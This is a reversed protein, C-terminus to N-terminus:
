CKKYSKKFIKMKKLRISINKGLDYLWKQITIQTIKEIIICILFIGIVTIPIVIFQWVNNYWNDLNLLELYLKSSLVFHEHILYVGLTLPTIKKVIKIIIDKKIKLDKFYLFLFVSAMFTTLFNYAYIKESLDNINLMNCIYKIILVLFYAFITILFYVILNIKNNYLNMKFYLRIYAGVLYLIIFWIIGYGGTDDLSFETPLISTLFCFISLLIILLKQFENKSLQNIMKNIFPSIIYLVLYTSIFWYQKTMVPFFAKIGDVLSFDERGTLLLIIYIGISYMFTKIWIKVINKLKLNSKVQFYGTIIVYCNVAVICIIELFILTNCYSNKESDIFGGKSLVHLCVIMIMAIIKLIDLAFNRTEKSKDITKYSYTHVIDISTAMKMKGNLM